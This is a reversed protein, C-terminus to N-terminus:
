LAAPPAPDAAIFERLIRSLHKFKFPKQLFWVLRQNAFRRATEEDSYGSMLVVPVDPAIARIERLAEDGGLRPMVLDLVVAAFEGSRARFLEVAEVGDTAAIVQLGLKELMQRTVARVLPEDDVLLVLGQGHWTRVGLPGTDSFAGFPAELAPLVVQFVTGADPQSQCGIAGGHSRVIGM